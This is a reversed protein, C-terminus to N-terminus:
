AVNEFRFLRRGLFVEWVWFLVPFHDSTIKPLRVGPVRSTIKGILSSFFGTLALYCRLRRMAPGLLAPVALTPDILYCSDILNSFERMPWSWYGGPSREPPFGIVNFDGSLCWPIDWSYMFSSLEEFLVCRMYDDNPGYVGILDWEFSDEL